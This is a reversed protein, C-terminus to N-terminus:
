YPGEPGAARAARVTEFIAAEDHITQRLLYGELAWIKERANSRAIDRGLAEDFNAPDVCSAEGTVMFGNRLTLCCVTLRRGFVHYEESAIVADIQQPTVRPATLGKDQIEREVDSESVAAAKVVAELAETKAAQGKQFPMWSAFYGGEPKPDDDQLLQVSMKGSYIDGNQAFPVLNICRDDHVYTVIAALPQKVDARSDDTVSPTFWVVRGVTPKIM